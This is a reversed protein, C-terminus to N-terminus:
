CYVIFYSIRVKLIKSLKYSNIINLLGQSLNKAFIRLLRLIIFLLILGSIRDIMILYQLNCDLKEYLNGKNNCM